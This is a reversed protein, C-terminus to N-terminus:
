SYDVRKIKNIYNKIKNKNEIDMTSASFINVLTPINENNKDLRIDNQSLINEENM